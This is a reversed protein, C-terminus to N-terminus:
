QMDYFQKITNIVETQEQYTLEPNCPIRIQEAIYKDTNPLDTKLAQYHHNPILDYGLIGINNKLLHAVLQNKISKDVRIVYDQYVRGDQSLPLKIPYNNLEENYREAIEQRKQLYQPLYKLKITIVAAQINDPEMNMGLEANLDPNKGMNSNSRLLRLRQAIEQSNTTIM